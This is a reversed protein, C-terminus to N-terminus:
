SYWLWNLAVSDYQFIYFYYLNETDVTFYFNLNMTIYSSAADSHLLSITTVKYYDSQNTKYCSIKNLSNRHCPFQLLILVHQIDPAPASTGQVLGLLGDCGGRGSCGCLSLRHAAPEVFSLRVSICAPPCASPRGAPRWAYVSVCTAECDHQHDSPMHFPFKEKYGHPLYIYSPLCLEDNRAFKKSLSLLMSQWLIANTFPVWRIIRTTEYWCRKPM